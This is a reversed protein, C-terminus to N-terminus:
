LLPQVLSVREWCNCGVELQQLSLGVTKPQFFGLVGGASPTLARMRLLVVLPLHLLGAEALLPSIGARPAASGKQLSNVWSLAAVDFSRELLNM